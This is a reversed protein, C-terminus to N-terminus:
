YNISFDKWAALAVAESEVGQRLLVIGNQYGLMGYRGQTLLEDIVPIITQLRERDDAFVIQYQQLQGLDAVVYDVFIKEEADNILELLPFGLMERRSSLHPVIHTTASVSADNPIQTL